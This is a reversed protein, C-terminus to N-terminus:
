MHFIYDLFYNIPFTSNIDIIIIGQFKGVKVSSLIIIKTGVGSKQLEEEFSKAM